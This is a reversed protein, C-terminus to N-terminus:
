DRRQQPRDTGDEGGDECRQRRHGVVRDNIEEAAELQGMLFLGSLAKHPTAQDTSIKRESWAIQRIPPSTPLTINREWPRYSLRNSRMASLSSTALEIRALGVLFM